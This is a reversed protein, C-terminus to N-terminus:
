FAVLGHAKLFNVLEDTVIPDPLGAHKFNNLIRLKRKSVDGPLMKRGKDFKAEWVTVLEPEAGEAGALEADVTVMIRLLVEGFGVVPRLQLPSTSSPVAAAPAHPMGIGRGSLVVSYAAAADTLRKASQAGGHAIVNRIEKFYRFCALLEDIHSLSYRRDKKLATSFARAAVASPKQLARAMTPRIGKTANTPFQLGKEYKDAFSESGTASLLIAKCWEEYLSTLNMLLMGAVQAQQQEATQKAFGHFNGFNSGSGTPHTFRARLQEESADPVAALYGHVQWRLNWLAATVPWAFDYTETVRQLANRTVTYFGTRAM